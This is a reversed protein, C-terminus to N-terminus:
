QYMALPMAGYLGAKLHVITFNGFAVGGSIWTVVLFFITLLSGSLVYFWFSSLSLSEIWNVLRDIWSPRYPPIFAEDINTM